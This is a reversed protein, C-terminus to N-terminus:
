HEFGTPSKSEDDKKKGLNVTKLKITVSTTITGNPFQSGLADMENKFRLAAAFVEGLANPKVTPKWQSEPPNIPSWHTRSWEHLEEPTLRHPDAGSTASVWGLGLLDIVHRLLVEVEADEITPLLMRGREVLNHMTGGDRQFLEGLQRYSITEFLEDYCYAAAMARLLQAEQTRGRGSLINM